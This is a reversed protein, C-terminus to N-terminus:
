LLGKNIDTWVQQLMSYLAIYAKCNNTKGERSILEVKYLPKTIRRYFRFRPPHHVVWIILTNYPYTRKRTEYRSLILGRNNVTEQLLKVLNDVRKMYWSPTNKDYVGEPLFLRADTQSVM